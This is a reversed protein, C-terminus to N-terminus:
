KSKCQDHQPDDDDTMMCVTADNFEKETITGDGNEDFVDMCNEALEKAAGHGMLTDEVESKEVTGSGDRDLCHFAAQRLDPDCGDYSAICNPKRTLKKMVDKMKDVNDSTVKMDPCDIGANTWVSSAGNSSAGDSSAGDSSAGQQSGWDGWFPAALNIGSQTPSKKQALSAAAKQTPAGLTLAGFALAIAVM